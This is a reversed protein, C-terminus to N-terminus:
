NARDFRFRTAQSPMTGALGNPVRWFQGNTPLAVLEYEGRPIAQLATRGALGAVGPKLQFAQPTVFLQLRDAAVSLGPQGGLATLFPSPDFVMPVVVQLGAELQGPRPVWRLAFQLTLEPVGDGDADDGRGDDDADLIGVQFGGRSKQLRGGADDSIVVVSALQNPQEDLVLQTAQTDVRFAPPEVLIRQALALPQELTKGPQLNVERGVTVWDGAGPQALVDVQADFNGNADLLAFARYPNPEVPGLRYQPRVALATSSVATAFLPVAPSIPFGEKPAYLFVWVNGGAGPQLELPGELRAAKELAPTEDVGACGILVVLSLALSRM